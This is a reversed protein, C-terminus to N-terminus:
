VFCGAHFGTLNLEGKVALPFTRLSQDVVGAM